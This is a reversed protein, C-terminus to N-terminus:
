DVSRMPHPPNAQRCMTVMKTNELTRIKDAIPSSDPQLSSLWFSPLKSKKAEYQEKALEELATEEANKTAEAKKASTGVQQVRDFNELVRRRAEELKRTRESEENDKLQKLVNKAKKIEQKQSLM